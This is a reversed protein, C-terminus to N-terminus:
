DLGRPYGISRNSDISGEPIGSLPQPLITCADVNWPVTVTVADSNSPTKPTTPAWAGIWQSQPATTQLQSPTLRM